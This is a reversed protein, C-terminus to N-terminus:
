HNISIVPPHKIGTHAVIIPIDTVFHSISGVTGYQEKELEKYYEKGRFDLFNLGGFTTMYADQYGCQCKM